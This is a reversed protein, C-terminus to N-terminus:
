WKVKGKIVMHIKENVWFYKKWKSCIDKIVKCSPHRYRNRFGASIVWFECNSIDNLIKRKWNKGAGHHPVQAMLISDICCRYHKKLEDYKMNFSIDGTLLQGFISNYFRYSYFSSCASSYFFCPCFNFCFCPSYYLLGPEIKPKGVPGHYLVLSTNNFDNKLYRSLNIYCEKLNKLREKDRIANKIDEDSIELGNKRFCREFDQLASPPIKYNFFKFFWLNLVVVYGNHNKVLLKGDYIYKRWSKDHQMIKERLEKDDPLKYLYPKDTNNGEPPSPSLNEPSIGEGGGDEGGLLIIREVGREFLYEVPDSLFNYYWAPMNIRRLAVLLREVPFLYPLVVKKIIFNNFLEDLGSVHDSHLHSIILLDIKNDNTTRRFKRISTNILRINESGCDYIFRFKIINRSCFLRNIEGSYFLGQGVNHYIFEVKANIGM